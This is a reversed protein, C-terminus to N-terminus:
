RLVCGFFKELHKESQASNFTATLQGRECNPATGSKGEAFVPMAMAVTMAAM